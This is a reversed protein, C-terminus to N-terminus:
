MRSGLQQLAKVRESPEATKDLTQLVVNLEYVSIKLFQVYSLLSNLYLRETRNSLFVIKFLYPPPFVIVRCTEIMVRLPM